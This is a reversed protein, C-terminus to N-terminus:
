GRTIGDTVHAPVPLVLQKHAAPVIYGKVVVSYAGLITNFFRSACIHEFLLHTKKGNIAEISQNQCNLIIM